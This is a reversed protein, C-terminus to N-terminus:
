SLAEVGYIKFKLCKIVFPMKIHKIKCVVDGVAPSIILAFVCQTVVDGLVIGDECTESNQM